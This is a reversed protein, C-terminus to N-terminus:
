NLDLKKEDLDSRNKIVWGKREPINQKLAQEWDKTSMYTLLIDF